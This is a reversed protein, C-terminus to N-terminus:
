VQFNLKTTKENIPKEKSNITDHKRKIEDTWVYHYSTCNNMKMIIFACQSHHDITMTKEPYSDFTWINQITPSDWRQTTKIQSSKQHFADKGYFKKCLNIM